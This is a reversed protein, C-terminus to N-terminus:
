AKPEIYIIGSEYGDYTAIIESDSNPDITSLDLVEGTGIYVVIRIDKGAELFGVSFKQNDVPVDNVDALSTPEVTINTYGEFIKFESFDVTVNNVNSEEIFEKLEPEMINDSNYDVYGVRIARAIGRASKEDAKLRMNHLVSPYTAVVITIIIALIVLVFILEVLSFGRNRVKKM